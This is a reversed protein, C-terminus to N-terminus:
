LCKCFFKKDRLYIFTISKTYLKKKKYLTEWKFCFDFLSYVLTASNVSRWLKRLRLVFQCQGGEGFYFYVFRTHGLCM